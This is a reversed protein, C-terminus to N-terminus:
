KIKKRAWERNEKREISNDITQSLSFHECNGFFHKNVVPLETNDRM